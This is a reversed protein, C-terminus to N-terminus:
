SFLLYLQANSDRNPQLKSVNLDTLTSLDNNNCNIWWQLEAELHCIFVNKNQSESFSVFKIRRMRHQLTEFDVREKHQNQNSPKVKKVGAISSSHFGVLKNQTIEKRIQTVWDIMSKQINVSQLACGAEQCLSCLRASYNFTTASWEFRYIM